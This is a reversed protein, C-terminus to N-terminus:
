LNFEKRIKKVKKLCEPTNKADYAFEEYRKLEKILIKRELEFFDPEFSRQSSPLVIIDYLTAKDKGPFSRLLRGRRQIFERPNGSSSLLIGTRAPPVDVGEDLCKMAVLVQYDGDAFKRLLIERQAVNEVATFKHQLIDRDNLIRQVRKIQKPSCYVFCHRVGGGVKDLIKEFVVYKNQANKVTEQRKICLFNFLEKREQDSKCAYYQRAIKKTESQYLYFEEDTMEVFYPEYEYPTLYTEGTKPNVTTIADKISFVSVVDGFYEFLKKSGPEDFYRKPTASLGLRFEYRDLLGKQREPAGLTHVEDGILFVKASTENIIEAFDNSSFTNPTTLIIIKESIDNEIDRLYDVLKNKWGPNSSDAIVIRWHIDFKIIENEWQKLLHKTPSTIVVVLKKESESMKKLCGLAAFTKGSGTAMEFIGKKGNELWNAIASEQHTWLKIAKKRIWEKKILWKDLNLVEVNDPAIKILKEKVGTPVDIVKTRRAQGNWFKEFKKIDTDLYEKETEKWSCFVKFEEIHRTWGYASENDSGSFSIRNGEVDELIGVKQHFLGEKEISEEDLPLGDEDYVIAIKIELKKKAIMWGLAYVHDEVFKDELNELEELMMKEIVKEPNEHAERIVEVDSKRLKASTVLYMFGGNSILKSIGRAAVALASSSFFGALRKYTVSQSLALIYFDNLIDDIDSDYAKKLKIGKLTM